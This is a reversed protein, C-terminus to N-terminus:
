KKSWTGSRQDSIRTNNRIKERIFIKFNKKYPSAGAEEAEVTCVAYSARDNKAYYYLSTTYTGYANWVVLPKDFTYNGKKKWAALQKDSESQYATTFIDTQKHTVVKPTVKIEKQKVSQFFQEEKYNHYAKTGFFIAAACLAILVIMIGIRRRRKQRERKVIEKVNGM